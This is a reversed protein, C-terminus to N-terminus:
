PKFTSKSEPIFTNYKKQQAPCIVEGKYSRTYFLQAFHQVLKSIYHVLMADLQFSGLAFPEGVGGGPMNQPNMGVRHTHVNVSTESAFNSVRRM